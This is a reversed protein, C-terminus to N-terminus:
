ATSRSHIGIVGMQREPDGGRHSFFPSDGCRTCYASTTIREEAVGLARAREALVARLDVPTNSPPEPLGLAVHVEPGVEYCRGCISPGFHVHLSSPHADSTAQLAAVGAELVGAAVGRWGGHLAAVGRGEPDVLLIPVCDAVSVTLLLDAEATVHGDYGDSVLIGPAGPGHPLIRAGHVQRAHAVRPMGLARALRRWRALSDGVPTAGSLGLDFADGGDGRSTTGQVLWPFRDLWEPHAHVPVDVDVPVERVTRAPELRPATPRSSM